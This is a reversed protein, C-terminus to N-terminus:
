RNSRRPLWEASIHCHLYAAVIRSAGIMTTAPEDAVSRGKNLALVAARSDQNFTASRGKFRDPNLLLTAM